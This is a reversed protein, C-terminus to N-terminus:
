LGKLAEECRKVAEMAVRERKGYETCVEFSRKARDRLPAASAQMARELSTLSDADLKASAPPKLSTLETAFTLWMEGVRAAAETVWRPPPVPELEAIARYEATASELQAQKEQAFDHFPGEVYSKMEAASKVGKMAPPELREAEERQAEARVYQAAGISAMVAERDVLPYPAQKELAAGLSAPDLGQWTRMLEEARQLAPKRQKTRWLGLAWQGQYVLEHDPQKVNEPLSSVADASLAADNLYSVAGLVASVDLPDTSAVLPSLRRLVLRTDGLAVAVALGLGPARTAEGLERLRADDSPDEVRWRPDRAVLRAEIEVDTLKALQATRVWEPIVRGAGECAADAPEPQRLGCSRFALVAHGAAAGALSREAETGSM